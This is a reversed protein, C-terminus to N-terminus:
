VSLSSRKAGQGLQTGRIKAVEELVVRPRHEMVRYRAHHNNLLTTLQEFITLSM